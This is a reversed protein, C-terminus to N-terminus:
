VAMQFKRVCAPMIRIGARRCIRHRQRLTPIGTESARRQFKVECFIIVRRRCAVIDIEGARGRWRRALIRQGTLRLWIMALTEAGRRQRESQRRDGM